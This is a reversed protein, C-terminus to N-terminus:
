LLKVFDPDDIPAVTAVTDTCYASLFGAAFMIYTCGGISRGSQRMFSFRDLYTMEVSPWTSNLSMMLYLVAGYRRFLMGRESLNM